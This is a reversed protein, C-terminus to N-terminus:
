TMHGKYALSAQMTNMDRRQLLGRLTGAILAIAATLEHPPSCRLNCAAGALCGGESSLSHPEDHLRPSIISIRRSISAFLIM